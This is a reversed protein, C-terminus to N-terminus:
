YYNQYWLKRKVLLIIEVLVHNQKIINYFKSLSFIIIYIM